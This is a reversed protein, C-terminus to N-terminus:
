EQEDSKLFANSDICRDRHLHGGSFRQVDALAHGSKERNGKTNYYIIEYVRITYINNRYSVITTQIIEPCRINQNQKDYPCPVTILSQYSFVLFLDNFLYFGTPDLTWKKYVYRNSGPYLEINFSSEQFTRV